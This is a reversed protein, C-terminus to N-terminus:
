VFLAEVKILLDNELDNIMARIVGALRDNLIKNVEIKKLAWEICDMGLRLDHNFSPNRIFRSREKQLRQM